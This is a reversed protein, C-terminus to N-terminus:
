RQARNCKNGSSWTTPETFLQFAKSATFSLTAWQSGLESATSIQDRVPQLGVVYTYFDASRAVDSGLIAIHNAKLDNKYIVKGLGRMPRNPEWHLHPDLRGDHPHALHIEEAVLM